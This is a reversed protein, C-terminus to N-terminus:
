VAWSLFAAVERHGRIKYILPYFCFEWGLQLKRCSTAIRFWLCWKVSPHVPLDLFALFSANVGFERKSTVVMNYDHPIPDSQAKGLIVRDQISSNLEHETCEPQSCFHKLAMELCSNSMLGREKFQQGLSYLVFCTVCEAVEHKALGCSPLSSPKM